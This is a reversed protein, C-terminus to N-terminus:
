SRYLGTILAGRRHFVERKMQGLVPRDSRYRSSSACPIGKFAKALDSVEVVRAVSWFGSFSLTPFHRRTVLVVSSEWSTTKFIVAAFSSETFGQRFLLRAPQTDCTKSRLPILM